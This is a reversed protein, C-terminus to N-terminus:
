LTKARESRPRSMLRSILSFTEGQSVEIKLSDWPYWFRRHELAAEHGRLRAETEITEQALRIAEFASSESKLVGAVKEMASPSLRKSEGKTEEGNAKKASSRSVDPLSGDSDDDGEHDGRRGHKSVNGGEGEDSSDREENIGTGMAADVGFWGRREAAAKKRILSDLGFKSRDKPLDPLIFTPLEEVPSAVKEAAQPKPQYNLASQILADADALEEDSSDERPVRTNADKSTSGETKDKAAAKLHDEDDEETIGLEAMTRARLQAIIEAASLQAGDGPKHSAVISERPPEGRRRSLKEMDAFMALDDDMDDESEADSQKSASKRSRLSRRRTDAQQGRHHHDDDDDDEVYLRGKGKDRDKGKEKEKVPVKSKRRSRAFPKTEQSFQPLIDEDSGYKEKLLQKTPTAPVSVTALNPDSPAKRASAVEIPSDDSESEESLIRESQYVGLDYKRRTTTTQSSSVSLSKKRRDQQRSSRRSPQSDEVVRTSATTSTRTSRRRRQPRGSGSRHVDAEESRKQSTSRTPRQPDRAGARLTCRMWDETEIDDASLDSLLTPETDYIWSPPPTKKRLEKEKEEEQTATGDGHHDEPQITTSSSRQLPPPETHARMEGELDSMELMGLSQSPGPITHQPSTPDSDPVTATADEMNADGDDDFTRDVGRQEHDDTATRSSSSERHQDDGAARPLVPKHGADMAVDHDLDGSHAPNPDGEWM